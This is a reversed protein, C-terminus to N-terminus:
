GVRITYGQWRDGTVQATQGPLIEVTTQSIEEEVLHQGAQVSDGVVALALAPSRLDNIWVSGPPIVQPAVVDSGTRQLHGWVGYGFDNIVRIENPVLDTSSRTLAAVKDAKGQGEAASVVFTATPLEFTLLETRMGANPDERIAPDFSYNAFVVYEAPLPVVEEGGPPPEVVKWVWTDLTVQGPPRQFVAIRVVEHTQNGITIQSM